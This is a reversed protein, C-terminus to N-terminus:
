QGPLEALVSMVVFSFLSGQTAAMAFEFWQTTCVLIAIVSGFMFVSLDMSELVQSTPVAYIWALLVLAFHFAMFMITCLRSIPM